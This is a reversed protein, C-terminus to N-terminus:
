MVRGDAQDRSLILGHIRVTSSFVTFLLWDSIDENLSGGGELLHKSFRRPLGSITRGAGSADSALM